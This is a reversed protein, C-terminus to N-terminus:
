CLWQFVNFVGMKTFTNTCANFVAQIAFSLACSRGPLIQIARVVDQTIHINTLKVTYLSTRPM